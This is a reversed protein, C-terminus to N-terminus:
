LSISHAGHKIGDKGPFCFALGQERAKFVAASITSFHPERDVIETFHGNMVQFRAPGRDLWELTGCHLNVIPSAGSLEDGTQVAFM